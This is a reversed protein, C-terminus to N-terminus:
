LWYRRQRARYRDVSLLEGQRIHFTVAGDKATNYTDSGFFHYRDVVEAHPHGFRSRYGAAFVVYSPDVYRIFPWSSSSRSGHHPALLITSKLQERYHRVLALEVPREIDGTLLTVTNGATIKLVCSHNNPSTAYEGSKFPYIFEFAVGDWYWHEQEYCFSARDGSLGPLAEGIRVAQTDIASLLGQWDGAHDNDKHSVILLDLMQIGRQKLYPLIVSRTTSFREGQAAGLDYILSHQATQVVVSLGQGVDLVAVDLDGSDLSAGKTLLLPLLLIVSAYRMPTARPLLLLCAALIAFILASIPLAPLTMPGATLVTNLWGLFDIMAQLCTDLYHWITISWPIRFVHLAAALFNMPVVFFSFLPVAVTNALPSVYSITGLAFATMPLLGMFVLWQVRWWQRLRGGTIRGCVGLLIAAVAGFSLWFSLSVPALPDILLCLVLAVLLSHGPVLPRRMLLALMVMSIMILARQTPLSFGAAGSYMLAVVLSTIVAIKDPAIIRGMLLLALLRGVWYGIAAMLGVHLGSIVLLHSTGTDGFLQRITPDLNQKDGTLLAVLISRHSVEGMSRYLWQKLQWRWRDLAVDANGMRENHAHTRVQGVAGIGQQVLWSQYDFGGPNAPSHPRKATVLLRWQQGPILAEQRGYWKLRIRKIALLCAPPEVCVTQHVKLDFQQYIDAVTPIGVIEGEVWLQRGEFEVPLQRDLLLYGYEVAWVVGIWAVLLRWVHRRFMFYRRYQSLCILALLISYLLWRSPLQPLWAVIGIGLAIALMWSRM